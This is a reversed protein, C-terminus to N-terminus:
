RLSRVRKIEEIRNARSAQNFSGMLLVASVLLFIILVSVPYPSLGSVLTMVSSLLINFCEVISWKHRVRADDLCKQSVHNVALKTKRIVAESKFKFILAVIALITFEISLFAPFAILGTGIAIGLHTSYALRKKRVSYEVLMGLLSLMIISVIARTFYGSWSLELLINMQEKEKIYVSEITLTYELGSYLKEVNYM